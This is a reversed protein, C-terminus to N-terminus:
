PVKLLRPSPGMSQWLPTALIAKIASDVAAIYPQQLRLLEMKAAAERQHMPLSLYNIGLPELGPTALPEPALTALLEWVPGLAEIIASFHQALQPFYLVQLAYAQDLPSPAQYDMQRLLAKARADIWGPYQHLAYILAEAKERLLKEHERRRTLRHTVYQTAVAILGGILTGLLVPVAKPLEALIPSWDM